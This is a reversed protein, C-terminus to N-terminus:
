RGHLYNTASQRSGPLCRHDAQLANIIIYIEISRLPAARLLPAGTAIRELM